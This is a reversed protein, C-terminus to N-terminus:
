GGLAVRLIALVAVVALFSSVFKLAILCTLKLWEIHIYDEFVVQMGLQAHFFVVAVFVMLLAGEVPSRVWAVVDAYDAGALRALSFVFWVALPVLAVATLRQWWWHSAGHKASGLGIVRALPSRLSM